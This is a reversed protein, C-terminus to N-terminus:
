KKKFFGKKKPKEEVKPINVKRLSKYDSIYIGSVTAKVEQKVPISDFIKDDCILSMVKPGVKAKVIPMKSNRFIKPTQELVMPPLGADKLKMKKKDIILINVYQAAAKIQAMTEAQKKNLKKSAVVIFIIGAILIVAVVILLIQWWEM